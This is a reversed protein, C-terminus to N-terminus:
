FEFDNQPLSLSSAYEELESLNVEFDASTIVLNLPPRFAAPLVKRLRALTENLVDIEASYLLTWYYTTYNEYMIKQAKIFWQSFSHDINLYRKGKGLPCLGKFNKYHIFTHLPFYNLAVNVNTIIHPAVYFALRLFDKKNQRRKYLAVSMSCHMQLLANVLLAEFGGGDSPSDM